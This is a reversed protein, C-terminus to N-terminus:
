HGGGTIDSIFKHFLSSKAEKNYEVPLKYTFNYEPSHARLVYNGNTDIQSLDLVGNDLNLLLPDYNFESRDIQLDPNNAFWGLVEKNINTTYRDKVIRETYSSLLKKAKPEFYGNGNYMYMENNDTTVKFKYEPYYVYLIGRSLRAPIVSRVKNGDLYWESEYINIDNLENLYEYSESISYMDQLLTDGSNKVNSM